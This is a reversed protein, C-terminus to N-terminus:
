GPGPRRALASILVETQLKRKMAAAFDKLSAAPIVFSGPGGTVELKYYTALAPEESLIPLGNVTIGDQVLKDRAEDPPGGINGLGDGSIDVVKRSAPYPLSGFLEDAALLAATIGTLGQSSRATARVAEAFAHAEAASAIRTWPVVQFQRDGDSFEMVTLAVAHAPGSGAARIFDANDVADAIGQQQLAYRGADVSQSVDVLLVVATDVAPEAARASSVIALGLAAALLLRSLSM